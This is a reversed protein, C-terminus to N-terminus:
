AVQIQGLLHRVGLVIQQHLVIHVSLTVGLPKKKPNLVGSGPLCDLEINQVVALWVGQEIISHLDCNVRLLSRSLSANAPDLLAVVYPVRIVRNPFVCDVCILLVSGQGPGVRKCVVM